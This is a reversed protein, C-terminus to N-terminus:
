CSSTAIGYTM